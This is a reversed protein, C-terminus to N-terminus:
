TDPVALGKRQDEIAFIASIHCQGIGIDVLTENGARPGDHHGACMECGGADVRCAPACHLQRAVVADTHHEVDIVPRNQPAQGSVAQALLPKDGAGINCCMQLRDQRLAIQDDAGFLLKVDGAAGGIDDRRDAPNAFQRVSYDHAFAPRHAARHKGSLNRTGEVLANSAWAIRHRHVVHQAGAVCEHASEQATPQAVFRDLGTAGVCIRATRNCHRAMATGWRDGAPLFEVIKEGVAGTSRCQALVRFDFSQVPRCGTCALPRLQQGHRDIVAGLELFDGIRCPDAMGMDSMEFLKRQRGGLTDGALPEVEPDQDVVPQSLRREIPDAPCRRPNTPRDLQRSRPFQLEFAARIDAARQAFPRHVVSHLAQHEVMGVIGSRQARLLFRRHGM